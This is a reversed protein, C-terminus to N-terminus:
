GSSRLSASGRPSGVGCEGELHLIFPHNHDPSGKDRLFDESPEEHEVAEISSRVQDLFAHDLFADDVGLNAGAVGSWWFVSLM